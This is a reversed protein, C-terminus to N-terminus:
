AAAGAQPQAQRRYLATRRDGSTGTVIGRMLKIDRRKRKRVENWQRTLEAQPIPAPKKADKKGMGFFYLPYGAGFQPRVEWEAIYVLKAAHLAKLLQRTARPFIGTTEALSKGNHSDDQLAHIVSAFAILESSETRKNKRPRPTNNPHPADPQDGLAYAPIRSRNDIGTNVWGSVHIIRLDNLCQCFRGATTRNVKNDDAITKWTAQGGGFAITRLCEAYGAYGLRGRARM